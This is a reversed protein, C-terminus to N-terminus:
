RQYQINIEEVDMVFGATWGYVIEKSGRAFHKISRKLNEAIPNRKRVKSLNIARTTPFVNDPLHLKIDADVLINFNSEPFMKLGARTQRFM